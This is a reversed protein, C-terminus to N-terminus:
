VSNFKVPFKENQSFPVNVHYKWLWEFDSFGKALFLSNNSKAIEVSLLLFDCFGPSLNAFHWETEQMKASVQGSIKGRSIELDATIPIAVTPLTPVVQMRQMLAEASGKTEFGLLAYEKPQRFNSVVVFTFNVPAGLRMLFGESEAVITETSKIGHKM